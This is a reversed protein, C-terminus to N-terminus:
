HLAQIRDYLDGGWPFYDSHHFPRMADQLPKRDIENFTIGIERFSKHLELEERRVDDTVKNAAEKFISELIEQDEKPITQWRKGDMAVIQADLIHATLNIVPTVEYFRMAKIAPLPNEQALVIGEELAKYTEKFPIQVPKAGLARFTLVMTQISPVRIPLNKFDDLRTLPQKTTVHREGYYALGLAKIGSVKEFDKVLNSFLESDRFAKWHEFDRFVFPGAGISLPPYLTVLHGFSLYAMDATGTKFGEIVQADTTGVLGKPFVQLEYRGKLQRKIEDAAWLLNRHHATSEELIHGYVLTEVASASTVAKGLLLGSVMLYTLITTKWFRDKMKTEM